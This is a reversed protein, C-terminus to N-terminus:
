LRVKRRGREAGEKRLGFVTMLERGKREELSGVTVVKTLSREALNERRKKEKQQGKKFVLFAERRSLIDTREGKALLRKKSKFPKYGSGRGFIWARTM